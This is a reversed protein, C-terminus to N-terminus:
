QKIKLVKKFELNETYEVESNSISIEQTNLGVLQLNLTDENLVIYIDTEESFTIRVSKYTLKKVGFIYHAENKSLSVIANGELIFNTNNLKWGKLNPIEELENIRNSYGVYPYIATIFNFNTAKKSLIAWQKGRTGGSEAKDIKKLQFVDLGTANDFTARLLNPENEFSYHGQWVQKFNHEESANFNDKVIWFDNKIHIVQRTYNVGVNEFGNHSGVFLDFDKNTNWAIVKPNPLEKFKGFIAM